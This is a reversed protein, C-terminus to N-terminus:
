LCTVPGITQQAGGKPDYEFSTQCTENGPMTVQIDNRGAVLGTLYILGDYGVVTNDITGSRAAVSGIPVVSGDALQVTVSAAQVKRVGLDVVVGSRYNPVVTANTTETQLELPLNAADIGIRNQRFSELNTILARGNRGSTAIRRGNRTVDVGPVGVNVVAFSDNARNAVFVGGGAAIISGEASGTVRAKSSDSQDVGAALFVPATRYTGSASRTGGGDSHQRAAITWGVAGEESGSSKSARASLGVGNKDAVVNASASKNDGFRMTLGAFVGYNDSSDFKGYANAYFSINDTIPNTWSGNIYHGDDGEGAGRIQTWGFSLRSKDFLGPFSVGARDITRARASVPIKEDDQRALLTSVDLYDGFGRETGAYYSLERGGGQYRAYVRGGTLGEFHSGAVGLHIGGLGGAAVFGIGGNVLGDFTKVHAEGTFQNTFGYRLTASAVPTQEYDFSERGYSLRPFGAELSFDALGPTLLGPMLYYRVDRTVERGLEDRMVLRATGGGGLNGPSYAFPGAPVEGSYVRVNNLYVDLETPVASSGSFDPTAATILDPRIDFNRSIQIGGLRYSTGWQPASSLSDGLRYAMARQPHMYEWASDLRVVSDADQAHYETESLRALLSSSVVGFRSSLRTDFSGSLFQTNIDKDWDFEAGGYFAYNIIATPSTQLASWDVPAAQNQKNLQLPMRAADIAEFDIRQAPEDVSFTIGPLDQLCVQGSRSIAARKVKLGIQELSEATACIAGDAMQRVVILDKVSRNNVSVSLVLEVGAEADEDSISSAFAPGTSALVLVAVGLYARMTM